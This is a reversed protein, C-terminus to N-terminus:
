RRLEYAYDYLAVPRGGADFYKPDTPQLFAAVRQRSKVLTPGMRRYSQLLLYQARVGQELNSQQVVEAGVWEDASLLGGDTSCLRADISQRVNRRTRTPAEYTLRLRGGAEAGAEVVSADPWFAELTRRANDARLPRAGDGDADFVLEFDPANGVNPLALISAMRAGPTLETLYGRGLPFDVRELKSTVRWRGALWAPLSAESELAPPEADWECSRSWPQGWASIGDGKSSRLLPAISKASTSTSATSPPPLFPLTACSLARLVVIRRSPDARM